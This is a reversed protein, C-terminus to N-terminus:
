KRLSGTTEYLRRPRARASSSLFIYAQSSASPHRFCIKRHDSGKQMNRAQGSRNQVSRKISPRITKTNKHPGITREQPFWSMSFRMDHFGFVRFDVFFKVVMSVLFTSFDLWSQAGSRAGPRAFAGGPHQSHNGQYVHRFRDQCEVFGLARFDVCFDSWWASWFHQSIPHHNLELVAVWANLLM